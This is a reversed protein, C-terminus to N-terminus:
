NRNKLAGRRNKRTGDAFLVKGKSPAQFPIDLLVPPKNVKLTLDVGAPVKVPKIDYIFNKTGVHSEGVMSPDQAVWLIQGMACPLHVRHEPPPFLLLKADAESDDDNFSAQVIKTAANGSTIKLAPPLKSPPPPLKTPFTWGAVLGKELGTVAGAPESLQVIEKNSLVRNFVAVNDLLGYFQPPLGSGVHTWGATSGFRLATGATAQVAETVPSGIKQGDFFLTFKNGERTVALHHWTRAKLPANVVVEKTGVRLFLAPSQDANSFSGQGVAFFPAAGADGFIPAPLGPSTAVTSRYGVIVNIYSDPYQPMFKFGITHDANFFSDFKVDTDAHGNWSFAMAM